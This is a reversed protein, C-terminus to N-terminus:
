LVYCKDLRAGVLKTSALMNVGLLKPQGWFELRSPTLVTASALYFLINVGLVKLIPVM